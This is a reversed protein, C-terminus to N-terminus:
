EWEEANARAEAMIFIIKRERATLNQWDRIYQEPAYNRWDHVKRLGEFREDQLMQEDPGGILVNNNYILTKSIM